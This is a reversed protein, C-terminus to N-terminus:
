SKNSKGSSKHRSLCAHCPQACDSGRGGNDQELPISITRTEGDATCLTVSLMSSPSAAAAPMSAMALAILAVGTQSFRSRRIKHIM